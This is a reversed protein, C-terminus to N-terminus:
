NCQRWNAGFFWSSVWILSGLYFSAEHSILRKRSLHFTGPLSLLLIHPETLQLRWCIRGGLSPMLSRAFKRGKLSSSFPYPVMIDVNCSSGAQSCFYGNLLEQVTLTGRISLADFGSHDLSHGTHWLQRSSSTYPMLLPCSLIEVKAWEPWQTISPFIELTFCLSMQPMLWLPFFNFSVYSCRLYKLRIWLIVPLPYVSLVLM